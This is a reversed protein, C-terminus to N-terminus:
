RILISKSYNQGAFSIRYIYQGYSLRMGAAQRVNISHRGPFFMQDALTTLERGAIDYLTVRGHATQQTEIEILTQNNQYVPRHVFRM